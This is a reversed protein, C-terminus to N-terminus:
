FTKSKTAKPPQLSKLGQWQLSSQGSYHMLDSFLVFVIYPM